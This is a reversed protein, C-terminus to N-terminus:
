YGHEILYNNAGEDTKAKERILDVSFIPTGFIFTAASIATDYESKYVLAYLRARDEFEEKILNGPLHKLWDAYVRKAIKSISPLFINDGSFYASLREKQRTAIDNLIIAKEEQTEARFYEQYFQLLDFSRARIIEGRIESAKAGSFDNKLINFEKIDEKLVDILLSSQTDLFAVPLILYNGNSSYAADAISYLQKMLFWTAGGYWRNGTVKTVTASTSDILYGVVADIGMKTVDVPRLKFKDRIQKQLETGIKPIKKFLKTHKFYEHNALFGVMNPILSVADDIKNEGIKVAIDKIYSYIPNGTPTAGQQYLVTVEANTLARNYIRIEDGFFESRGGHLHATAGIFLGNWPYSGNPIADLNKTASLVGDIYFYATIQSGNVKWVGSFLHWNDKDWLPSSIYSGGEATYANRKAEFGQSTLLYTYTDIFDSGFPVSAFQQDFFNMKVPKAWITTSFSQINPNFKLDQALPVSIYDDIGDFYFGKGKRGTVCQPNGNITGDHGNGSNDKATCDNFSWYAVLGTNLDASVAGSIALAGLLMAAKIRKM